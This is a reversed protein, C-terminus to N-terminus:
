VITSTSVLVSCLNRIITTELETSSETAVLQVPSASLIMSVVSVHTTVPMASNPLTTTGFALMADVYVLPQILAGRKRPTM